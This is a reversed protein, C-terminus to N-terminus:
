HNPDKKVVGYFHEFTIAHPLTLLSVAVFFYGIVEDWDTPKFLLYLLLLGTIAVMGFLSLDRIFKGHNYASNRKSLWQYQHSFANFSHFLLFYLTFAVLFPLLFYSIPIYILFTLLRYYSQRTLQNKILNRTLGAVALLYISLVSLIRFNISLSFFQDNTIKDLFPKVEPYSIMIPCIIIVAGWILNLLRHSGSVKSDELLEQGFHYSSLLLFLIFAKSPMLVWWVVFGVCILLYRIIYSKLTFEKSTTLHIKHDIAGHPIGFILIAALSITNYLEPTIGLQLQYFLVVLCIFLYRIKWTM